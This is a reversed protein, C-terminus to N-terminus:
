GCKELAARFLKAYTEVLYPRALLSSFSEALDQFALTSIKTEFRVLAQAIAAAYLISGSRQTAGPLASLMMMKAYDKLIRLHRIEVKEDFLAESLSRGRFYEREAMSLGTLRSFSFPGEGDVAIPTELDHYIQNLKIRDDRNQISELACWTYESKEFAIEDTGVPGSVRRGVQHLDSAGPLPRANPTVTAPPANPALVDPPINLHSEVYWKLWQSIDGGIDQGSVERLESALTHTEEPTVATALRQLLFALRGEKAELWSEENKVEM